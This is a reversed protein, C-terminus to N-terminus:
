IEIGRVVFSNSEDLRRNFLGPDNVAILNKTGDAWSGPILAREFPDYQVPEFGMGDLKAKIQDETYGYRRVLGIFEVLIAVPRDSSLVREGGAIVAGEWGEADIKAVLAEGALDLGDLHQSPVEVTSGSESGGDGAVVHNAAGQDTTMRSVSEDEGVVKRECDVLDTLGNYRVNRVLVDYTHPVPEFATSRAGAVGSALVSYAGINAGVDVFDDGDRLAHLVFAMEECDHLGAYVNGTAGRMGRRLVLHTEGIFPVVVLEDLIRTALQWRLYRSVAYSLDRKAIGHGALWSMTEFFERVM